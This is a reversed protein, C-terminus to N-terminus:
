LAAAHYFRQSHATTKLGKANSARSDSALEFPFESVLDVLIANINYLYTAIFISNYWKPDEAISDKLCKRFLNSISKRKNIKKM